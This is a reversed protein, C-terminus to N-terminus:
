LQLNFVVGLSVLTNGGVTLLQLKTANSILPFEPSPVGAAVTYPGDVPLFVGAATEIEVTVAEAPTGSPSGRFIVFSKAFPPVDVFTLAVPMGTGVLRFGAWVTLTLRSAGGRSGEAVSAFASVPNLGGNGLAVSGAAPPILNADNRTTIELVDAPVSILAGGELATAPFPVDFFMESPGSNGSAWQARGVVPGFAPANVFDKCKAFVVATLMTPAEVMETGVKAMGVFKVMQTWDGQGALGRAAVAKANVDVGVGGVNGAQMGQFQSMDDGNYAGTADCGACNTVLVATWIAVWAVTLAKDFRTFRGNYVM